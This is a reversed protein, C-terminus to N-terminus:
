LPSLTVLTSWPKQSHYILHMYDPSEARSKSWFEDIIGHFGFSGRYDRGGLYVLSIHGLGDSWDISEREYGDVYVHLKSGDWVAGLLMWSNLPVYVGTRFTIGNEAFNLRGTGAELSIELRQDDAREGDKELLVAKDVSERYVWMHLTYATLGPDYEKPLTVWSPSNTTKFDQGRGVMGEKRSPIAGGGFGPYQGTADKYENAKGSGVEELHWIGSWAQTTPFVKDPSASKEVATNDWYMIIPNGYNRSALSDARIFIEALRASADWRVIEFPLVTGDALAFRIDRGDSWAENFKFNSANLRLLLPFDKIRFDPGLGVQEFNVLLQAKYLWASFVTDRKDPPIHTTDIPGSTDAPKAARTAIIAYQDTTDAAVVTITMRNEGVQLPFPESPTGSPTLIIDTYISAPAYEPVATARLVTQDYRYAASYEHVSPDFPPSLTGPDIALSVLRPSPQPIRTSTILQKGDAKTITEDLVLRGNADWGRVRISLARTETDDLRFSPMASPKALHGNWLSGIVASTDGGALILVQVSDFLSLSDHLRVTVFKEERPAPQDIQCQPLLFLVAALALLALSRPIASTVRGTPPVAGDGDAIM